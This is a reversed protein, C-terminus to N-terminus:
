YCGRLRGNWSGRWGSDGAYNWSGTFGTNNMHFYFQGSGDYQQWTGRVTGDNYRTGSLTGNKHTYSGHVAGTRQNWNLTVVGWSSDFECTMALAPTSFLVVALVLLPIGALLRFCRM